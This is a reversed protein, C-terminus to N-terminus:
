EAVVRPGRQHFRARIAADDQCIRGCDEIIRGVTQRSIKVPKGDILRDPGGQALELTEVAFLLPLLCFLRLGAPDKPLAIAYELGANLHQAAREIVVLTARLAAQRHEPFLLQDPSIGEAECVTQPVFCVGRPFDDTIDKIVNVMQLGLGFSEAHPALSESLM